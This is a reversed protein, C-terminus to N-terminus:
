RKPPAGRRSEFARQLAREGAGAVSCLRELGIPEELARPQQDPPM